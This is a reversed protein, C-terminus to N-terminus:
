TDCDEVVPSALLACTHQLETNQQQGAQLNVKRAAMAGLSSIPQPASHVEGKSISGHM